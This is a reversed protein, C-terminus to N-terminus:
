DHSMPQGYHHSEVVLLPVFDAPDRDAAGAQAIAAGCVRAAEALDGREWREVVMRCAALLKPAAAILCANARDTEPEKGIPISAIPRNRSRIWLQTENDTLGDVYWAEPTHSAAHPAPAADAPPADEWESPPVIQWAGDPQRERVNCPGESELAEDDRDYFEGDQWNEAAARPSEAEVEYYALAREVVAVRYTQTTTTTM